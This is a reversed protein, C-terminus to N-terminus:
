GLCVATSPANPRLSWHINKNRTYAFEQAAWIASAAKSYFM